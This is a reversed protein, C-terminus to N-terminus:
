IQMSKLWKEAEEIDDFNKYNGSDFKSEMHIASLRSFVKPSLITAVFRLGSELARPLWDIEIWEYTSEPYGGHHNNNNNLLKQINFKRLIEIILNMGTRIRKEDQYGIWNIYLWDDDKPIEFQVYVGEDDRLEEKHLLDM